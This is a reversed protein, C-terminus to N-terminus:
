RNLEALRIAPNFNAGAVAFHGLVEDGGARGNVGDFQIRQEQAAELTKRLFERIQRDDGAINQFSIEGCKGGPPADADIAIQRVVDSRRDKMMNKGKRILDVLNVDHNLFFDSQTESCFWLCFAKAIEGDGRLEISTRLENKLNRAACEARRRLNAGCQYRKAKGTFARLERKAIFRSKQVEHLHAKRLLAFDQYVVQPRQRTWVNN